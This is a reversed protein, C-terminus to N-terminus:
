SFLVWSFIPLKYFFLETVVHFIGARTSGIGSDEISRIRPTGSDQRLVLRRACLYRPASTVLVHTYPECLTCRIVLQSRITNYLTCWVTEALITGSFPFNRIEQEKFLLRQIQEFLMWRAFMKINFFKIFKRRIHM